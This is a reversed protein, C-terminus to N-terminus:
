EQKPKLEGDISDGYSVSGVIESNKGIFKILSGLTLTGAEKGDRVIMVEDTLLLKYKDDTKEFKRLEM